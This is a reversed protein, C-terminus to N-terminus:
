SPWSTRREDAPDGRLGPHLEVPGVVGPHAHDAREYPPPMWNTVAAASQRTSAMTGVM